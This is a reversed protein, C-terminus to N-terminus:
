GLKHASHDEIGLTPNWLRMGPLVQFVMWGTGEVPLGVGAAAPAGGQM